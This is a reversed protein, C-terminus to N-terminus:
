AAAARPPPAPAAQPPGSRLARGLALLLAGTGFLVAALSVLWGVFPIAGVVALLVAAVFTLAALAGLGPERRLLRRAALVALSAAATLWGAFLLVLWLGLAALAVPAGVATVLLVVAALPVLLVHIAGALLSRGPAATVLRAAGITLRPFAVLLVVAALALGLVWLVAVAAAAGASLGRRAARPEHVVRGAITAGDPVVVPAPSSYVLDGGIRARPGLELRDSAVVRVDGGVSGDIRVTGGAARLPGAVEGDVAITGAALLALGGVKAGRAIRVSAGALVAADRVEAALTVDGGLARVDDGVRGRVRVTGGAATLDEAVAATTDVTGGAAVVDGAVDASVEVTGGALYLDRDAPAEVAVRQGAEQAAAGGGAIAAAACLALAAAGRLGARSGSRTTM